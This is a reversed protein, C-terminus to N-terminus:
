SISLWASPIVRVHQLCSSMSHQATGHQATSHGATGCLTMNCYADAQMNQFKCLMAVLIYPRVHMLKCPISHMRTCFCCSFPATNTPAQTLVTLKAFHDSHPGYEEVRVLGRWTRCTPLEPSNSFSCRLWKAKHDRSFDGNNMPASRRLRLLLASFIRVAGSTIATFWSGNPTAPSRMHFSPGISTIMKQMNTNVRQGHQHTCAPTVRQVHQHLGKHM